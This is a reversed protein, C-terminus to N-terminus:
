LHREKMITKMGSFNFLDNQITPMFALKEGNSGICPVGTVKVCFIKKKIQLVIAFDQDFTSDKPVIDSNQHPACTEAAPFARFPLQKGFTTNPVNDPPWEWSEM